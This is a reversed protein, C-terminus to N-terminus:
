DLIPGRHVESKEMAAEFIINYIIILHNTEAVQQGIVLHGFFDSMM